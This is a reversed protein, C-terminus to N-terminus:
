KKRIYWVSDNVNKLGRSFLADSSNLMRQKSKLLKIEACDDYLVAIEDASVSYPPGEMEDQNYQMSKLLLTGQPKLWNLCIDVYSSRLKQPLAILAARDYIIDVLPILFSNLSFIDAVWISIADTYFHKTNDITEEQFHLQNEEAFQAVAQQSLEIGVVRYGQQTLWIMDLSKGCLPVLVIDGPSSNVHPWYTILDPNVEEKHFNTRGEKWLDTWFQQGKNM